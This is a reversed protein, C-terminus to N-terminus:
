KGSRRPNAVVTAGHERAIEATRDSSGDDVVIIDLEVHTQQLVSQLTENLFLEGNFVPIIISVLM